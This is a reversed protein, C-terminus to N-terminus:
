FLHIHLPLSSLHVVPVVHMCIYMFLIVLKIIVFRKKISEANDDSRGSTKGRELLRAEMVTEPCNLYLCFQVEVDKMIANWGDLNDKNRPFGDILFLSKGSDANLKMKNHLLGITVEVQLQSVCMCAYVMSMHADRWHKIARM